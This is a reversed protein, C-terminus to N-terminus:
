NGFPRLYPIAITDFNPLLLSSTNGVLTARFAVNSKNDALDINANFGTGNTGKNDTAGEFEFTVGTGAPQDTLPPYYIAPFFNPQLTNAPNVAVWPSNIKSTTKVYDLVTFYRSNDGNPWDNAQNVVDHVACRAAIDGNINDPDLTVHNGNGDVAGESFVRFKPWKDLLVGIAMTFGNQQSVTTKQPRIRVEFM